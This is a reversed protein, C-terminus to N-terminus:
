QGAQQQWQHKIQLAALAYGGEAGDVFHLHKGQTASFVMCTMLAHSSSHLGYFIHGQKYELDLFNELQSKQQINLDLVLRLMDDFKRYDAHTSM